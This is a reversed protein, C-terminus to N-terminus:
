GVFEGVKTGVQAGDTKALELLGLKSGVSKGEAVVVADGVVEGDLGVKIGELLGEVADVITGLKRGDLGVTDGVSAGEATKDNGGDTKDVRCGVWGVAAGVHVGEVDEDSAGDTAELMWGDRRGDLSGDQEGVLGM